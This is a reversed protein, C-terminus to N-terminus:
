TDTNKNFFIEEWVAINFLRIKQKISLNNLDSVEFNNRIFSSDHIKSEFLSIGEGKQWVRDPMPWGMKDKRWCIEDPIKGNFALRAFYKTWGNHIKFCPPIQATFEVLRYDMFPMRAEVSHMMSRRDAYHILNILSTSNVM